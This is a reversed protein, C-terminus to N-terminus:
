SELRSLRQKLLQIGKESSKQLDLTSRFNVKIPNLLDARLKDIASKDSVVYSKEFSSTAM